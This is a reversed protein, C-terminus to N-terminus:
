RRSGCRPTCRFAYRGVTRPLRRLKGHPGLREPLPTGDAVHGSALTWAKFADCRWRGCRDCRMSSPVGCVTCLGWRDGKRAGQRFGRNSPHRRDRKM